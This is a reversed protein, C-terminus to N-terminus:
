RSLNSNNSTGEAENTGSSRNKEQTQLQQYQDENNECKQLHSHLHISTVQQKLPQIKMANLNEVSQIQTINQNILTGYSPGTCQKSVPIDPLLGPTENQQSLPNQIVHCNILDIGPNQSTSNQVLFQNSIQPQSNQITQQFNSTGQTCKHVNLQPQPSAQSNQLSVEPQIPQFYQDSHVPPKYDTIVTATNSNSNQEHSNSGHSTISKSKPNSLINALNQALDPLTSSVEKVKLKLNMENPGGSQAPFLVALSASGPPTSQNVCSPQPLDTVNIHSSLSDQNIFQTQQVYQLLKNPPISSMKKDDICGSVDSIQSENSVTSVNSIRRNKEDSVLQLQPQQLLLLNNHIQSLQKIDQQNQHLSAYQQVTNQITQPVLVNNQTQQIVLTAPDRTQTQFINQEFQSQLQEVSYDQDNVFSYPNIVEMRLQSAEAIIQEKEVNKEVISKELNNKLTEHLSVKLATDTLDSAVPSQMRNWKETDEGQRISDEQDAIAYQEFVPSVLFRSIKRVPMSKVINEESESNSFINIAKYSIEEQADLTCKKEYNQKNRISSANETVNNLHSNVHNSIIDSIVSYSEADNELPNVEVISDTCLSSYLNEQSAALDGLANTFILTDTLQTCTSLSSSEDAPHSLVAEGDAAQINKQKDLTSIKIQSIMQDIALSKTPTSANSAEDRQM